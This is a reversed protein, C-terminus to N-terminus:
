WVSAGSSNQPSVHRQGDKLQVVVVVFVVVDKMRLASIVTSQVCPVAHGHPFFSPVPVEVVHHHHIIMSSFFCCSGKMIIM